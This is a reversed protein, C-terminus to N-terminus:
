HQTQNRFTADQQKGEKQRRNICFDLLEEFEEPPMKGRKTTIGADKLWRFLTTRDIELASCLDKKTKFTKREM